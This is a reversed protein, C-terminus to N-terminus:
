AHTVDKIPDPIGWRGMVPLLFPIEIEARENPWLTVLEEELEPLLDVGKQQAQHIASWTSIFGLLDHRSWCLEIGYHEPISHSEGPFPLDSYRTEVHRRQPPWWIQLRHHYLEDLWQQLLEPAGILPAYGIWVVLGGPRLVRLYEQNFHEVNLWHIATACVVASCCHAALGSNEASAVQFQIKPHPPAAAIQKPSLDTAFVTSFEEALGISAQGSGCAADWCLNHDPAQSAIWRFVSAPYHPRREAYAAAVSDFWGHSPATM